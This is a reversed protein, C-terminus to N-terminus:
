RELEQHIDMTGIITRVAATGVGYRRTADIAAEKVRPDTTLALYNNSALNVVRRGDIVSVPEQAGQLVRLTVLRNESKLNQVEVELFELGKM